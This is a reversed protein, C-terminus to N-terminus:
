HVQGLVIGILNKDLMLTKNWPNLILGEVQDTELTAQFVKGLESTFASMIPNDGKMQEEFSTFAAFWLGGGPVEVPRIQLQEGVQELAVIVHAKEQMKRRIVTLTHALMEETTEKQLQSIALEIVENGQLNDETVGNKLKNQEM